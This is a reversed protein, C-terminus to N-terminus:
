HTSGGGLIMSPPKKTDEHTLTVGPVKRYGRVFRWDRQTILDRLPQEQVELNQVFNFADGQRSKTATSVRTYIAARMLRPPPILQQIRQLLAKGEPGPSLCFTRFTDVFPLWKNQNKREGNNL